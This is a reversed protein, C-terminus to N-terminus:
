VDRREKCRVAHADKPFRCARCVHERRWAEVLSWYDPLERVLDYAAECDEWRWTYGQLQFAQYKEQQRSCTSAFMDAMALLQQLDDPM